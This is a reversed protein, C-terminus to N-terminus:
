SSGNLICYRGDLTRNLCAGCKTEDGDVDIPLPENCPHCNADKDELPAKESCYDRECMVGSLTRNPCKALCYSTFGSLNISKPKDCINCEGFVGQLPKNEASYGKVGCISCYDGYYTGKIIYRDPCKSCNDNIGTVNIANEEDCAHCKGDKDMLPKTSPCEVLSCYEDNKGSKGRKPCVTLCNPTESFKVIGDWDCDHCEGDTGRLPKGTPCAPYCM